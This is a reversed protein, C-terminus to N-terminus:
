IDLNMSFFNYKSAYENIALINEEICIKDIKIKLM